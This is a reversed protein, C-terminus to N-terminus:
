PIKWPVDETVQTRDCTGQEGKGGQTGPMGNGGREGKEGTDGKAGKICHLQSDEHENAPLEGPQRKELVTQVGKIEVFDKNFFIIVPLSLFRYLM